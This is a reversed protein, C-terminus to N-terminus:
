NMSSPTMCGKGGDARLQRIADDYAQVVKAPPAYVPSALAWNSQQANLAHVLSSESEFFIAGPEFFEKFVPRTLLFCPVGELLAAAIPRGFGEQDAVSALLDIRSFFDTLSASDSEILEVSINPYKSTVMEFYSTRHGYILFRLNKTAGAAIVESFLNEYNKKPSDSGVLGILLPQSATRTPRSRSNTIRPFKNPAFVLRHPEVGLSLVFSLAESTNIFGVRCRSLSLSWRLLRTKLKAKPGTSFPYADHVVVWQNSLGALPHSTPTFVVDGRWAAALAEWLMRPLSCAKVECQPLAIQTAGLLAPHVLIKRILGETQSLYDVAYYFLGNTAKINFLNGVIM